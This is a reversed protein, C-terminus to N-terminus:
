WVVVEKGQSLKGLDPRGIIKEETQEPHGSIEGRWISGLPLRYLLAGMYEVSTTKGLGPEGIILAKGQFLGVLLSFLLAANFEEGKIRLDPRNLYYNDRIYAYIHHVKAKHPDNNNDTM